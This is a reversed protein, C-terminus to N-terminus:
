GGVRGWAPGGPTPCSCSDGPRAPAALPCSWAGAYCSQALPAAPPLYGYSPYSYAPPPPPYYYAPPPPPPAYYYPTPAPYFGGGYGFFFGVRAEAPAPALAWLAAAAALAPLLSRTLRM